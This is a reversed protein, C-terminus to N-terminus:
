IVDDIMDQFVVPQEKDLMRSRGQGRGDMLLLNYDEKFVSLQDLFMRHDAGAGHLFVAWSEKGGDKIWYNIQCHNVIQHHQNLGMANEVTMDYAPEVYDASDYPGFGILAILAILITAIIKWWKALVNSKWLAYLGVPFILVLLLYVVVKHDYWQKQIEEM